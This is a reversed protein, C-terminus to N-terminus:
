RRRALIITIDDAQPSSGAFSGISDVLRQLVRSCSDSRGERLAEILREPGFFDGAENRAETVGDTFVALISGREIRANAEEYVIQPLMGLILGGGTLEASAGDAHVVVPPDHGANAYRIEGSAPDILALFATIFKGPDVSEHIFRNIRGLAEAAGLRGLDQSRLSARFASMLLAAPAGKGSVDAIALGIRGDELQLYDYYDGGIERAPLSLGALELHDSAPPAAPLLRTQIARALRLEEELRQQALEVGRVRQLGEAMENFSDAVHWLDDRGRVPIRYELNGTKLADAGRTLAQVASTVTRGMDLVIATVVIITGLFLFAIIGLAILVAISFPNERTSGFLSTLQEGFTAASAVPLTRETWGSRSWFLCRLTAGGPIRFGPRNPPGLAHMLRRIAASDPVAATDAPAEELRDEESGIQLGGRRTTVILGPFLRVSEGVTRSIRALWLSDIQALAEVRTPGAPVGGAVGTSPDSRDYRARLWLGSGDWLLPAEEAPTERRLLSDAPVALPDGLAHAAGGPDLWVVAQRSGDRGFPRAPLPQGAAMLSALTEGVSESQSRLLRAALVSRFTSLSLAGSLLVFTVGLAFPFIAALIHSSVLRRSIRRISLHIRSGTLFLSMFAYAAVLLRVVGSFQAMGAARRLSEIPGPEYTILGLLFTLMAVVIAIVLQGAGLRYRWRFSALLPIALLVSIGTASPAVAPLLLSAGFLIRVWLLRRGRRRDDHVLFWIAQFSLLAGFWEILHPLYSLIGEHPGLLLSAAVRLGRMLLVGAVWATCARGLSRVPLFRLSLVAVALCAFYLLGREM